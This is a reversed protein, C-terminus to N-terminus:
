SPSEVVPQVLRRTEQLETCRLAVARAVTDPNGTGYVRYLRRGTKESNQGTWWRYWHGDTWVILDAWVSVLAIGEGDHVDGAVGLDRLASALREASATWPPLCVSGDVAGRVIPTGPPSEM